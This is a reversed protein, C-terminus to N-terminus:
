GCSLLFFLSNNLNILANQYHGVLIQFREFINVSYDDDVNNFYRAIRSDGLNPGAGPYTLYISNYRVVESLDTVPNGVM